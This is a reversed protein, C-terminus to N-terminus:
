TFFTSFYVRQNKNPEKFVKVLENEIDEESKSKTTRGINTGEMM